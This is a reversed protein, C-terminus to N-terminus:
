RDIRVRATPRALREGTDRTLSSDGPAEIRGSTLEQPRLRGRLLVKDGPDVRLADDGHVFVGHELLDAFGIVHARGIVASAVPRLASVIRFGVDHIYRKRIEADVRCRADIAARRRLEDVVRGVDALERGALVLDAADIRDGDLGALRQPAPLRAYRVVRWDQSGAATEQEVARHVM